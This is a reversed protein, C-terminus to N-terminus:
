PNCRVTHWDVALRWSCTRAWIRSDITIPGRRHMIRQLAILPQWGQARIRTERSPQCSPRGRRQFWLHRSSQCSPCAQLTIEGRSSCWITTTKKSTCAFARIKTSNSCNTHQPCIINSIKIPTRTPSSLLTSKTRARAWCLNRRTYAWM